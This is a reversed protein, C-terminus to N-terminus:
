KGIKRKVIELINRLGIKKHMWSLIGVILFTLLIVRVLFNELFVLTLVSFALVLGSCKIISKISYLMRGMIKYSIFMHFAFYLIYTVLTTYSAAIYGYKPIFIFNLVANILAACMTGFAILKTKSFYYEVQVPLTYLFVFYGSVVIPIVSYVANYYDNSGLIMIIEPALLLVMIVMCAIGFSYDKARVRIIKEDGSNMKEYFWPGWVQDTSTTTVFVISYINYAFSYIGAETDGIMTRIMIRDFQSLIVQSFGHPIIPLSYLVGFKVFELNKTPKEKRWLVCVIYLAIIIASVVTGIIRGLYTHGKCITFILVLSLIINIIANVASIKIFDNYRYELGVYANYIQIIATALSYIILLNVLVRSLQLVDAYLPYTVNAVIIWIFASVIQVIICTSVYRNFREGFRYKGNKLSAHLALGIVIFLIAEYSLYTNYIGYDSPSMIKTFVPITLFNLGKLLYNGITYGIGAKIVKNDSSM